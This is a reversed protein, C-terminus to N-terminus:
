RGHRGGGCVCLADTVDIAHMDVVREVQEYLKTVAKLKASKIGVQHIKLAFVVKKLTVKAARMNAFSQERQNYGQTFMYLWQTQM